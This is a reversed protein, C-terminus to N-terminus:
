EKWRNGCNLCTVFITMPEDASRTQMEYFSCERQNCKRCLFEDTAGSKDVEYMHQDRKFKDDMLLKWQNPFLEQPTMKAINKPEVKKNIVDKFLGKNKVYSSSNLNLCIHRAYIIYMEKFYDNSWSIDINKETAEKVAKDYIGIEIKSVFEDLSKGKPIKKSKSKKFICKIKDSIKERIDM